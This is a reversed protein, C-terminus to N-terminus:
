AVYAVFGRWIFVCEDRPCEVCWANEQTIWVSFDLNDLWQLDAKADVCDLESLLFASKPRTRGWAGVQIEIARTRAKFICDCRCEFVVARSTLNELWDVLVVVPSYDGTFRQRFGDRRVSWYAGLRNTFQWLGSSWWLIFTPGSCGERRAFQPLIGRYQNM